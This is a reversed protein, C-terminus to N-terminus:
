WRWPRMTVHVPKALNREDEALVDLRVRNRIAVRGLAVRLDWLNTALRSADAIARCIRDVDVIVEPSDYVVVEGGGDWRIRALM